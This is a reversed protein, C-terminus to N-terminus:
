PTPRPSADNQEALGRLERRSQYEPDLPVDWLSWRNEAWQKEGIGWEKYRLRRRETLARQVRWPLEVLPAASLRTKNDARSIRTERNLERQMAWMVLRVHDDSVPEIGEDVGAYWMDPDDLAGCAEQIDELIEYGLDRLAGHLEPDVPTFFPQAETTIHNITIRIPLTGYIDGLPRLMQANAMFEKASLDVPILPNMRVLTRLRRGM